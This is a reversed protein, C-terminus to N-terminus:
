NPPGQLEGHDAKTATLSDIHTFGFTRALTEGAAAHDLDTLDMDDPLLGYFEVKIWGSV